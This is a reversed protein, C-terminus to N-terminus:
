SSLDRTLALCHNQQSGLQASDGQSLPNMSLLHEDNDFASTQDHLNMDPRNPSRHSSGHVSQEPLCSSLDGTLAFHQFQTSGLHAPDCQSLSNM